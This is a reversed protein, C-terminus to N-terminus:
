GGIAQQGSKVHVGPRPVNRVDNGPSTLTSYRSGSSVCLQSMATPPVPLPRPPSPPSQSTAHTITSSSAHSSAGDQSDMDIFSENRSSAPSVLETLFRLPKRRSSFASPPGNQSASSTRRPATASHSPQIPASVNIYPRPVVPFRKQVVPPPPPLPAKDHNPTISSQLFSASSSNDFHAQGVSYTPRILYTMSNMDSLNKTHSIPSSIYPRKINEINSKGALFPFEPWGAIRFTSAEQKESVPFTRRSQMYLPKRGSVQSSESDIPSTPSSVGIAPRLVKVVYYLVCVNVFGTQSVTLM